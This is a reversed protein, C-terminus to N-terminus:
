KQQYGLLFIKNEPVSAIKSITDIFIRGNKTGYGMVIRDTTLNSFNKRDAIENQMEFASKNIDNNINLFTHRSRNYVVRGYWLYPINDDAQEEHDLSKLMSSVLRAESEGPFIIAHDYFRLLYNVITQVSSARQPPTREEPDPNYDHPQGTIPPQDRWEDIRILKNHREYDQKQINTLIGSRLIRQGTGCWPRQIQSSEHVPDHAFHNERRHVSWGCYPCFCKRAMTQNNYRAPAIRNDFDLTNIGNKLQFDAQYISFPLIVM